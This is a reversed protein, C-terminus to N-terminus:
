PWMRAPVIFSITVLNAWWLPNWTSLLNPQSQWPKGTTLVRFRHYRIVSRTKCVLKYVPKCVLSSGTQNTFFYLLPHATTISLLWHCHQSAAYRSRIVPIVHFCIIKLYRSTGFSKSLCAVVILMWHCKKKTRLKNWLEYKFNHKNSFKM